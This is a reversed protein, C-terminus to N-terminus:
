LGNQKSLRPLASYGAADVIIRVPRGSAADRAEILVRSDGPHGSVADRERPLPQVDIVDLPGLDIRAAVRRTVHQVRPSGQAALWEAETASVVKVGAGAEVGAGAAWIQPQQRHGDDYGLSVWGASGIASLATCTAIAAMGLSAVTILRGIDRMLTRSSTVASVVADIYARNGSTFTGDVCIM